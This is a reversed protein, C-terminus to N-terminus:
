ARGCWKRAWLAPAPFPSPWTSRPRRAPEVAGAARITRRTGDYAPAERPSGALSVAAVPFQHRRRGRHGRGHQLRAAPLFGAFLCGFVAGATNAGYLWGWVRLAARRPKSGARRHGAPVRGDPHHAAAPLHGVAPRAAAHGAHRARGGALYVRDILPMLGVLVLLGCAAIGAELARMCDCRICGASACARCLRPQGPLARGHFHGAALGAFRRDLRHGAAAASVLRNRLDPRLLRQGRVAAAAFSFPTPSSEHRKRHHPVDYWSHCAPRHRFGQTAGGELAGM